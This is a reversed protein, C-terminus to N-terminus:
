GEDACALALRALRQFRPGGLADLGDKANHLYAFSLQRRPDVFAGTGRYGCHGFAGDITRGALRMGHYGLRWENVIHVVRDRARVQVESAAALTRPSILSGDILGAYMRALARATFVGTSSPMCATRLRRDNWSLVLGSAPPVLAARLDDLRVHGLTVARVFPHAAGLEGLRVFREAQEVGSEARGVGEHAGDREPV